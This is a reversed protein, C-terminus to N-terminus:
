TQRGAEEPVAYFRRFREFRRGDKTSVKRKSYHSM